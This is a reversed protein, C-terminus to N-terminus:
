FDDDDGEAKILALQQAQKRDNLVVLVAVLLGFCAIGLVPINLYGVILFGIFFFPILEKSAILKLLMAFGLAPIMSAAASLGNMVFDPIADVFAQVAPGGVYFCIGIIIAMPLNYSLMAWWHQRCVARDNGQAAYADARHSFWGRILGYVFQKVLLALTAIPLSLAIAGEVGSGTSIAFATGLIGGACLDPPLAGGITITGMYVLELSAGVVLGQYLDGLALGVLFGTFIPRDYQSYGLVPNCYAVFAILGIFFAQVM